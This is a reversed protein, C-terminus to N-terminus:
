VHVDSETSLTGEFKSTSTKRILNQSQFFFKLQILRINLITNIINDEQCVFVYVHPIHM